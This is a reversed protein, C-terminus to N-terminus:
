VLLCLLLWGCFFCLMFLCCLFCGCVAVCLVFSFGSVFLPFCCLVCVFFSVGAFFPVVFSVAVFLGISLGM